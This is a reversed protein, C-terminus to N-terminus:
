GDSLEPYRDPSASTLSGEGTGSTLLNHARFYVPVPSLAALEHLLKEGNRAYVYNPEDAGWDNGVPQYRGTTQNAHVTILVPEAGPAPFHGACAFILLAMAANRLSHPHLTLVSVSAM